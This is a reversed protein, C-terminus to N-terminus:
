GPASVTTPGSSFRLLLRGSSVEVSDYSIDEIPRPLPLATEGLNGASLLLRGGEIRADIEVESSVVDSTAMMRGRDFRVEFPAGANRLAVDLDEQDLEAAGSTSGVRLRRANQDLLDAVSFRVEDLTVSLASLTVGRRSLDELAVTASELEGAVLQTVFPFGGIDVDPEEDLALNAQVQEAMVDAAFSKAFLDGAVLLGAVVLLSILFGRM